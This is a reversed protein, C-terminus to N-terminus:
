RADKCYCNTRLESKGEQRGSESQAQRVDAGHHHKRRPDYLEVVVGDHDRAVVVRMEIVSTM